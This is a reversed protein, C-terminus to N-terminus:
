EGEKKPKEPSVKREPTKPKPNPEIGSAAMFTQLLAELRAQSERMHEWEEASVTVTRETAANVSGSRQRKPTVNFLRSLTNANRQGEPREPKPPKLEAAGREIDKTPTGPPDIKVPPALDFAARIVTSEGGLFTGIISSKAVKKPHLGRETLRLARRKNRYQQREYASIAVLIPFNTIQICMVNLNHMTDPQLILGLPGLILVAIINSPPLYCFVSDARVGELTNVARQFLYEQQANHQVAAFKASMMSVMMSFLMTSCMFAFVTLVVPALTSQLDEVDTQTWGKGFWIKIM